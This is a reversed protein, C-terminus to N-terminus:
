GSESWALPNRAMLTSMMRSLATVHKKRPMAMRRSITSAISLFTYAAETHPYKATFSKTMPQTQNTSLNSPQNAPQNTSFGACKHPHSRIADRM